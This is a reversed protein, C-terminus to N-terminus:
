VEGGMALSGQVGTARARVERCRARVEPGLALASGVLRAWLLLTFVSWVDKAAGPVGQQSWRRVARELRSFSSSGSFEQCSGRQCAPLTESRLPWREM